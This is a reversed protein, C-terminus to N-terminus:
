EMGCWLLGGQLGDGEMMSCAEECDAVTTCLPKECLIHLPRRREGARRMRNIDRLVEIHHDNPTGIM